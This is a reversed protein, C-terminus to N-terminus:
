LMESGFSYGVVFITVKRAEKLKERDERAKAEREIGMAAAEAESSGGRKVKGGESM